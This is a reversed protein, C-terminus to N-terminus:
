STLNQCCGDPTINVIYDGTISDIDSSCIRVTSDNVTGREAPNGDCDTWYLMYPNRDGTGDNIEVLYFYCTCPPPPCAANCAALTSYTGTGDGPDVCNGSVCNYSVPPPTSCATNCAALTAYTGTGDGPDVCVGEVCNYSVPPPTSCAAQCAALTAYTGSGDGPDVCSGEVCDYSVPPPPPTCVAECAVLTAYTGTGDGPDICTGAVCNYSVPPPPTCAAECAILTAYTGSGDGPDICTGDICDYSVPPPTLCDGATSCNTGLATKVFSPTGGTCTTGLHASFDNGRGGQICIYVTSGVDVLNCVPTTTSGGCDYFSISIDVSDTNEVTYCECLPTITTTTTTTVNCPGLEDATVFPSPSSVTGEIACIERCSLNVISSTIPTGNCSLYSFEYANRDGTGDDACVNYSLCNSTTTTTTTTPPCTGGCYVTNSTIGPGSLTGVRHCPISLTEGSLGGISAPSGDCTTWSVLGDEYLTFDNTVCDYCTTTTTTTTPEITTTTTTTTPSCDPCTGPLVCTTNCDYEGLLGGIPSNVLIVSGGQICHKRISGPLLNPSITSGDCNIVTYNISVTDENVVTWCECALTTTTTTTPPPATTTTTTTITLPIDIYNVCIGTSKIRIITTGNPVLASSYGALLAAKSVGTEFASVYGDVNSYLNFPGTDTGAITLTILVTM